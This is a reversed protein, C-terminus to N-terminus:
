PTKKLLVHQGVNDIAGVTATVAGTAGSTTINKNSLLIRVKTTAGGGGSSFSQVVETYGSPGTIAADTAVGHFTVSQFDTESTTLTPATITASAATALGDSTIVPAASDVNCYTLIAGAGKASVSLTWTYSTESNDAVTVVRYYTSQTINGTAQSEILTWGSPPTITTTSPRTTIGAVMLDGIVAKAPKSVVVTTAGGANEGSKYSTAAIRLILSLLGAENRSASTGDGLNGTTSSNAGWCKITGDAILTCQQNSHNSIAVADSLSSVTTPTPNGSCGGTGDPYVGVCGWHSRTGDGLTAGTRYSGASVSLIGTLGAVAVPTLRDTGTGDGLQGYQNDGWCKMTGTALLACSQDYGSAM